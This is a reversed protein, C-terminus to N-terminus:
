SKTESSNVVKNKDLETKRHESKEIQEIDAPKNINTFITTDNIKLALHDFFQIAKHVPLIDMEILEKLQELIEKKYYGCLPELNNNLSSVVIQNSGSHELLNILLQPTIFPMDCAVILNKETTSHFLGTYIGGVPGKDKYMDEFVPLQLYEYADTNAIIMVQDVVKILSAYVHEIMKKGNVIALGKDYGMRSSKGGALIIGTITSNEEM